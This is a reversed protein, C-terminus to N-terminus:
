ISSSSTCWVDKDNLYEEIKYYAKKILAIKVKQRFQPEPLNTVSEPIHNYFRICNGMFSSKVKSLRFLPIVLKNKNRLNVNHVDANKEFQDIHKRVYMINDFIYQSSFTLIDIEKFLERLSDRRRLGYIARVARKQLKFIIDSDACKGWLIIGYSMISHFYSYYVLRATTVDTLRRIRWVAFAASSLRSALSEIHSGWQIKSDISVGLFTTQEVMELQAKDLVVNYHKRQVNPLCFHICKTKKSNLVLNNITFWHLVNQLVHNVEDISNDKRNIKFVLSTDDAFLVIGATNQVMYPLDNIYVLFLFPGLISGQPVGINVTGGASLAGNVNVKQVRGELYSKMMELSDHTFGYHKLKLLLTSHCVCDFAKSLDCFVGVANHREEWAEFIQQMLSIGAETTNRGKTFGYQQQHFLKNEDFHAIMQNLMIKEFIKSFVPLISVPRFNNLSSKCGTKFLPVVKSIKMLDPFVGVKICTNFINSLYPALIDVVSSIVRVSMGWIDETNKLKIKKFAKIVTNADIESYNFDTKCIDINQKLMTEATTPCSNLQATTKIPIETFFKQFLEAVDNNTTTIGTETEIEYNTDRPTAKGSEKNIVKWVTKAKNVSSTIIENYHKSKALQCVKKFTKSYNKVYEKFKIDHCYTRQGYLEFMKDRSKRIGLTAWDSFKCKSTNIKIRKQTFVSQFINNVCNFLNCFLINPDHSDLDLATVNESLAQKFHEIRKQTIPRTIIENNNCKETFDFVVLQGSHDSRAFNVIAKDCVEGRCFVNDICTASSETCRTPELFVHNLNFSCFLSVLRSSFASKELLNVNFDGCIIVNKRSKCLKFLVQEMNKEFIDFNDYYPPRYVCVIICKELEVCSLEIKHEVSLSTVDKREKSKINQRVAILSGGRSICKRNFCSTINYNNLNFSM